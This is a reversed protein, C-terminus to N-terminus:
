ASGMVLFDFSISQHHTYLHLSPNCPDCRHRILRVTFLYSFGRREHGYSVRSVTQVVIKKMITPEPAIFFCTYTFMAFTFMFFHIPHTRDTLGEEKVKRKIAEMVESAATRDFDGRAKMLGEVFPICPGHVKAFTWFSLFAMSKSAELMALIHEIVEFYKELEKDPKFGGFFAFVASIDAKIRETAAPLRLKPSNALATLYTVLFTDLLDEVLLEFLLPKVFQQDSMYDKMTVVIQEVIGDYWAAQVLQKTVPKLDNFIIAVFTQMCKKAVDLNGDIADNLKENIPVRYKESVLPELKGLLTETNDASKIQDNALALCYEALGPVVEDPKDTQKKFEVEVVKTWQDQIGRMVRNTEEVVRALIAGQGSEMAADIQQNVMQFLIVAGQTGYLGDSDVEPQMARTTFEQIETKMLNASWEDLKKVILKLYDEILNQEEGNLLPPDILESSRQTREYEEQVRQAVRPPALPHESRAIDYSPPFCPVVDSEIRIIDQYIWGLNDLFASPDRQYREFYDDFAFQIAETITKTVKSHYHKIVRANAQMSRFKSAADMKAAKKVLRIAIAKEDEGGEFEAIKILKVVVDPYGARVLPLINRALEMLYTEFDVILQSLREFIRILKQRSTPSAQKAQHMTQNRFAELRSIQLHIHLLNPAPGVLEQSDVALMEELVDLKSNMELLNNVMEETQEFNRHVMSVRCIQDFTSIANQPDTCLRDITQMEEKLVQVHNRTSLLKKLGERTADLQEKVGSKLRADISAKEKELKKRFAAVKILDDPSQLYEGVAQAASVQLVVTAM